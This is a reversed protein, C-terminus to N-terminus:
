AYAQERYTRAAAKREARVPYGNRGARVSALLTEQVWMWFARGKHEPM